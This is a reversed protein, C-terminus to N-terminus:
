HKNQFTDDELILYLLVAQRLSLHLSLATTHSLREILGQPIRYVSVGGFLKRDSIVPINLDHEISKILRFVSRRNLSLSKVLGAITAGEPSAMQEIASIIHGLRKTFFGTHIPMAYTYFSPTGFGPVRLFKKSNHYIMGAVAM